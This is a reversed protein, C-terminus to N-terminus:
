GGSVTEERLVGASEYQWVRAASKEQLRDSQTRAQWNERKASSEFHPHARVNTGPLQPSLLLLNVSVRMSHFWGRADTTFPPRSCGTLFRGIGSGFFLHLIAQLLHLFFSVFLLGFPERRSSCCGVRCWRTRHHCCTKKRSRRTRKKSSGLWEKRCTVRLTAKKLSM